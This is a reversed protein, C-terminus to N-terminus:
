DNEVEEGNWLSWTEFDNDALEGLADARTKLVTLMQQDAIGNGWSVREWEAKEQGQAAAVGAFVWRTVPDKRWLDFEDRSIASM